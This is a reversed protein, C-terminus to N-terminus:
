QEDGLRVAAGVYVCALITFIYAQLGGILLDLAMLPVPAFLGVLAVALGVILAGSMMNGFLRLALALTRSLESVIHLPFLLPNPRFYERVYGWPGRKWIGAIPVALFVTVALATTTSLKATPAEVIPLQGVIASAAIFIFLAGAFVELAVSESGATEVALDRLFRFVLRTAAATRGDPARRLSRVALASLALILLTMGLSVGMTETVPFPGLTFLLREDFLEPRM